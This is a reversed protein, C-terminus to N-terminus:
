PAEQQLRSLAADIQKRYMVRLTHDPAPNHEASEDRYNKAAVALNLLDTAEGILLSVTNWEKLQAKAVVAKIQELRTAM